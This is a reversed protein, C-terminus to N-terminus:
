QDIIRGPTVFTGNSAAAISLEGNLHRIPSASHETTGLREARRHRPLTGNSVVISFTAGDRSALPASVNPLASLTAASAVSLTANASTENPLTGNRAVGIFVAGGDAESKAVDVCADGRAQLAHCGAVTLPHARLASRAAGGSRRGHWARPITSISM